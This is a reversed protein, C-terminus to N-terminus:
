SREEKLRREVADLRGEAEEASGADFVVALDNGMVRVSTWKGNETRVTGTGAGDPMYARRFSREARGARGADGYAVILLRSRAGRDGYEALVADTERGLLLINEDAVFFHYNLIPHVHFFRATREDLGDGPLLKLLAPRAGRGPIGEAIERGLEIVAARTEDTEEETYVSVFYRDKWFLLLGGKYVSGQGVAADEGDLDHTFVGFADEPVGMDFADVVIDPRGDKHYRRAVLLRMNYSRYVEGAGDIYGFITEPDYLQDAESLWPGVTAPIYSSLRRSPSIDPTCMPVLAGIAALVAACVAAKKMRM